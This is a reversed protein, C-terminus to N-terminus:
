MGPWVYAEGLRCVTANALHGRARDIVDDRYAAPLVLRPYPPATSKLRKLSYLVDSILTYDSEDDLAKLRESVFETTQAQRILSLDLGDHEFPLTEEISQDPFAHPDVWDDSDIVAVTAKVTPEIRSMM